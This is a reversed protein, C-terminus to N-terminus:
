KIIGEERAIADIQSVYERTCNFQEAIVTFNMEPNAMIYGLIKFSRGGNSLRRKTTKKRKARIGSRRLAAAMAPYSAEHKEALEGITIEPNQQVEAPLITTDIMPHTNFLLGLEREIKTLVNEKKSKIKFTDYSRSTQFSLRLTPAVYAV